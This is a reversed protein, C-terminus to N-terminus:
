YYIMPQHTTHPDQRYPDYQMVQSPMHPDVYPQYGYHEPYYYQQYQPYAVNVAETPGQASHSQFYEDVGPVSEQSGAPAEQSTVSEAPGAFYASGTDGNPQSSTESGSMTTRLGSPKHPAKQKADSRDDPARIEIRSSQRAPTFIPVGTMPDIFGNVPPTHPHSHPSLFDPSASAVSSHHMHGPIFPVSGSHHHAMHPHMMPRPTYMAPPASPQLYVARGTAVEYPYGHHGIAVGPPMPGYAYPSGYPPSPQPVPSFSTPIPHLLPPPPRFEGPGQPVPAHIGPPPGSKRMVTEEIQSNVVVDPPPSVLIQELQQQAHPEPLHSAHATPSPTHSKNLHTTAAPSVPPLVVSPASTETAVIPIHAPAGNPRVTFVEEISLDATPDVASSTEPASVVASSAALPSPEMSKKIASPIRVVFARDGDESSAAASAARVTPEHENSSVAALSSTKSPTRIVQGRHGPLRVRFSPGQGPRPKLAHDHYLAYDHHKTWSKEPPMAYWVRGEKRQELTPNFRSGASSHPLPSGGRVFGGRGRAGVFGGRGRFAMGRQPPSTARSPEQQAKQHEAQSRRREERRKMEEFGDHTWAREIPPVEAEIQDDVEGSGLNQDANGPVRGPIFGGRGGRGRMAFGGRGRGRSQWRGRWWGSLSRLDKDLLRDDHGWFEGVTPVYSPDSELRHQYAQRPTQGKPRSPPRRERSPPRSSSAVPELEPEHEQEDDVRAPPAYVPKALLSQHPNLAIHAQFYCITSHISDM